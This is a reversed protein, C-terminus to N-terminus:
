VNLLLIIGTIHSVLSAILAIIGVVLSIIYKKDEKYAKKKLSMVIAVISLIYGLLPSLIGMEEAIDKLIDSGTEVVLIINSM